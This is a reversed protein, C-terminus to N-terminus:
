PKVLVPVATKALEGIDTRATLEILYTGAPVLRGEGDRGDWATRNLGQTSVAAQPLRRIPKGNLSLVNMEVQASTSLSYTVAVGGGRGATPNLGMIRLGEGAPEVIVDFFQPKGDTAAVQVASTTRMYRREGTAENVLLLRVRAPVNRLDAWGLTVPEQSPTADVRLRFSTTTAGALSGSAVSATRVDFALRPGTGDGGGVVSLSVSEAGPLAPPKQIQIAATGATGRAGVVCSDKTDGRQATLSFAWGGEEPASRSVSQTGAGSSGPAPLILEGAVASLIWYGNWARVTRGSRPLNMDLDAVLKYQGGEIGWLYDIVQGATAAQRLTKEIGNISVKVLDRNWGSDSLFPSGILNWGPQLSIRYPQDQPLLAGYERMQNFAAENLKAFYGAGPRFTNVLSGASGPAFLQYDRRAPDYAALKRVAGDIGLVDSVKPGFLQAPIAILSTGAAFDHSVSDGSVTTTAERTVTTGAATVDSYTAHLIAGPKVLLRGDGTEGGAKGYATGLTGTFTGLASPGSGGAQQQTLTVPMTTGTAPDAVNVTVSQADKMDLDTVSLTIGESPRITGTATLTGNNGTHVTLLGEHVQNRRGAEDLADTYRVTITQGDAVQITADSANPTSALQTPVTVTFTGALTDGTAALSVTLHDGGSTQIEVAPPTGGALDRDTVGIVLPAGATITGSPLTLTATSGGEVRVTTTKPENVHGEADLPDIYTITVQDNAKVQVVNDGPHTTESYTTNISGTFLGTDPGTETLVVEEHDGASTQVTLTITEALNKNQNQDADHFSLAIPDGPHITGAAGQFSSGSGVKVTTEASREVNIQGSGTLSDEYVARLVDHGKVELKNDGSAATEGFVTPLTGQFIGTANGTETLTVTEADGNTTDTVRVTLTDPRGDNLNMDGDTVTLALGDTSKITAPATISGDTGQKVTIEATRPQDRRGLDDLADTFRLTVTDGAKVQLIADGTEPTTGYVTPLEARFTGAPDNAGHQLALSLQDGGSTVVPVTVTAQDSLDADTLTVHVTMGATIGTEATLSATHGGRVPVEFAHAVNNRGDADIADVYSVTVKDGAKVQVKHDSPDATEGFLTSVEGAFIGTNPGTEPLNVTLTDGNTCTATVPASGQGKLDEDVVRVPIPDGPLISDLTGGGAGGDHGGPGFEGSHGVKVSTSRTVVVNPQGNAAVRDVYTVEVTDHGKLTLIHDGAVGATGFQSPATAKFVGTDPGTEELTVSETDGNVSNKVTVTVTDIAGHDHNMDPDTVTVPVGGASTIEAPVDLQGDTGSAISVERTVTTNPKGTGDLADAATVVIKDGGKVQMVQDGTTPTMAFATPITGTFVGPTSTETLPVQMSDGNPSQVSVTTTRNNSVPSPDLDLDSLQIPISDGAVAETPVTLTATHGNRVGITQTIDEPVGDHNHLDHYTITIIDGGRVQLTGDNLTPNMSWATPLTATFVGTANGTETLTVVEHDGPTGDSHTTTVIVTITDRHNPDLDADPDTITIVLPDGATIEHVDSGGRGDGPTITGDQGHGPETFVTFFPRYLVKNTVPDGLGNPNYDGGSARDDSADLPGSGDGWWNRRADVVASGTQSVGFPRNGLIIGNNVHVNASGGGVVGAFSSSRIDCGYTTLRSGPTVVHLNGVSNAGGYRVDCMELVGTGDVVPQGNRSPHGFRIGQWSGPAPSTAAGDNNTDGGVDERISTFLIRQTSTGLARLTGKVYFVGADVGDAFKMITGPSITLTVGPNVVTQSEVFRNSVIVYPFGPNPVLTNDQLFTGQLVIGNVRNNSGSNGTCDLGQIWTYAHIAPGACETIVNRRITARRPTTLFNSSSHVVLIGQAGCRSITSDEVTCDLGYCGIGVGGASEVQCNKVSLTAGEYASLDGGYRILCNEFVGSSTGGNNFIKIEKWYGPAPTPGNGGYVPDSYTTFVIKNGPTGRAVLNGRVLLSANALFKVVTGPQITLTVGSAVTVTNAIGYPGGSPTWTTDQTITTGDITSSAWAPHAVALMVAILPALRWAGSARCALPQSGPQRVGTGRSVARFLCRTFLTSGM